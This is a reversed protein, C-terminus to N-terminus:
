GETAASDSSPAPSASPLFPKALFGGAARAYQVLVDFPVSLGTPDDVMAQTLGPVNHRIILHHTIEWMRFVEHRDEDGEKDLRRLTRWYRDFQEGSLVAPMEMTGDRGDELRIKIIRTKPM